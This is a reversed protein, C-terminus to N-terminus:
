PFKRNLSAYLVLTQKKVEESIIMNYNQLICFNLIM